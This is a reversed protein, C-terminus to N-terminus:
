VIVVPLVVIFDSWLPISLTGKARAKRLTLVHYFWVMTPNFTYKEPIVPAVEQIIFDSWLPISLIEAPIVIKGNVDIFDSWLPISLWYRKRQRLVRLVSLILGYHSQFFSITRLIKSWPDEGSLILGYHSQFSHFLRQINQCQSLILGYHSQFNPTPFVSIRFEIPYFWVM